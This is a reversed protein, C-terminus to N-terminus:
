RCRSRRRRCPWAGGPTGWTCTRTILIFLPIIAVTAPFLLGLVFVMFLPERGRFQYRALPYAAMLGFVVAVVTTLLAIVTSNLAYRWFSPSTLM